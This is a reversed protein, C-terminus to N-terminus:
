GQRRLRRRKCNKVRNHSDGGYHKTRSSEGSVKLGLLRHVQEFVVLKSEMVHIMENPDGKMGDSKLQQRVEAGPEPLMGQRM